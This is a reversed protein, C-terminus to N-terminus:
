RRSIRAKGSRHYYTGLPTSATKPLQTTIRNVSTLLPTWIRPFLRVPCRVIYDQTIFEFARSINKPSYIFAKAFQDFRAKYEEPTPDPVIRVCPKPKAPRSQRGVLASADLAHPAALVGLPALLAPLLISFRMTAINFTQVKITDTRVAPTPTSTRCIYHQLKGGTMAVNAVELYLREVHFLTGKSENPINTHLAKNHWERIVM